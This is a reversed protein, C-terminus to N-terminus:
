ADHFEARIEEWVNKAAEVFGANRGRAFMQADGGFREYEIEEQEDDPTKCYGEHEYYWRLFKLVDDGDKDFALKGEGISQLHSLHCRKTAWETGIKVGEKWGSEFTQGSARKLRQVTAKMESDKLKSKQSQIARDFAEIFLQSFNMKERWKEVDPMREDPVYVAIRAM